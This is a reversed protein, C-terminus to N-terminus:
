AASLRLEGLSGSWEVVVNHLHITELSEQRVSVVVDDPLGGFHEVVGRLAERVCDEPYRARRTAKDVIAGEDSRKMLEYIESSMSDEVIALLAMADLEADCEEPLELSLTGLGRQDDTAVPLAELIMAIQAETFGELRPAERPSALMGQATVGVKRRTGRGSAIAAGLLTYIEQTPIGSAPAPKYEPYRAAINVEARLAGARERVEVAIRRAFEEVKFGGEGLVVEGIVGNIVEDARPADEVFCDLTALYLQQGIRIVKEINTVGLRM